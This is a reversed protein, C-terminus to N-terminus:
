KEIISGNEFVFGLKYITEEFEDYSIIGSNFLEFQVNAMARPTKNYEEKKNEIREQEFQKKYQNNTYTLMSTFKKNDLNGYKDVYKKFIDDIINLNVQELQLLEKLKNQITSNRVTCNYKKKYQLALEILPNSKDLVMIDKDNKSLPTITNRDEIINEKRRKEERIPLVARDEARVFVTRDKSLEQGRSQCFSDQGEIDDTRNDKYENIVTEIYDKQVWINRTTTKMGQKQEFTKIYGLERLNSIYRRVSREEVHLLDAFYSNCATCPNGNNELSSIKCLLFLEEYSIKKKDFYKKDTLVTWDELVKVFNTKRM